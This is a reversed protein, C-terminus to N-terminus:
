VDGHHPIAKGGSATIADAVENAPELAGGSGDAAGGFDNVIVAAGERALVLCEARGIGRGGGTVIAVKGQLRM